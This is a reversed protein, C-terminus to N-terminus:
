IDVGLRETANGSSESVIREFGWRGRELPVKPTEFPSRSRVRGVLGDIGVNRLYIGGWWYGM